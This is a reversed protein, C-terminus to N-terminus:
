SGNERPLIEIQHGGHPRDTLIQGGLCGLTPSAHAFGDIEATFFCRSNALFSDCEGCGPKPQARSAVRTDRGRPASLCRAARISRRFARARGAAPHAVFAGRAAGECPAGDRVGSDFRTGRVMLFAGRAARKNQATDFAPVLHTGRAFCFRCARTAKTKRVTDAHCPARRRTDGYSTLGYLSVSSRVRVEEDRCRAPTERHSRDPRRM